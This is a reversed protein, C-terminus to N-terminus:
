DFLRYLINEEKEEEPCDADKEGQESSADQKYEPPTLTYVIAGLRQGDLGYLPLSGSKFDTEPLVFETQTDSLRLLQKQQKKTLTLGSGVSTLFALDNATCWGSHRTKEPERRRMKFWAMKKLGTKDLATYIRGKGDPSLVDPMASVMRMLKKSIKLYGTKEGDIKILM